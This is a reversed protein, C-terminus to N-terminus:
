KRSSGIFDKEIRRVLKGDSDYLNLIYGEEANGTVIEDGNIIDYHILTFFPNRRGTQVIRPLPLKGFACIFNFEPDFKKIEYFGEEMSIDTIFINGKNDVDDFIGMGRMPTSKLFHGDRDFYSMRNLDGVVLGDRESWTMRTPAEFEGPGQGPGGITKIFM